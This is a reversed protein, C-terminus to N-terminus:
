DRKRTHPGLVPSHRPGRSQCASLPSSRHHVPIIDLLCPFESDISCKVMYDESLSLYRPQWLGKKYFNPAPHALHCNCNSYFYGIM